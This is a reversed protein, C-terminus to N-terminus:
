RVRPLTSRRANSARRVAEFGAQRPRRVAEYVDREEATPEGVHVTRTTDSGYGDKIGGFDLVVLDGDEIVREGFEHHPNAGNRRGLASLRRSRLEGAASEATSV